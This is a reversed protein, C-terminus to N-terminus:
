SEGVENAQPRAQTSCKRSTLPAEGPSTTRSDILSCASCAVTLLGTLLMRWPQRPVRYVLSAKFGYLDVQGQRGLALLTCWWQGSLHVVLQLSFYAKKEGPQKQDHYKKIVAVSTRLCVSVHVYLFSNLFLVFRFLYFSVQPHGSHVSCVAPVTFTYNKINRNTPLLDVTYFITDWCVSQNHCHKLQRQDSWTRWVYTVM